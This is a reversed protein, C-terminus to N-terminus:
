ASDGSSAPEPLSPADDSAGATSPVVQVRLTDPSRLIFGSDPPAVGDAFSARGVHRLLSDIGHRMEVRVLGAGTCHHPGAGFPLIRSAQTFQRPADDIFRFPDFEDPREFAEPDRNASAILVFFRDGPKIAVGHLETPALARRTVAHVPPMFRLAEAAVSDVATRDARLADWLAPREFLYSFLSSLVRETTEVGATLLLASMAVIEEDPVPAGDYTMNCYDSIIDDGPRLRREAIIPALYDSLEAVAELARERREPHGMSSMSGATIVHYWQRFQTAGHDVNMLKGIALLPIWMCYDSKLDIVSPGTPLNAALRECTERVFGEMDQAAKSSRLRKAAVGSKKAHETGRMQLISRGYVTSGPGGDLTAFVEHDRLVTLVDAHRTLVYADLAESRFIPLGERCSAYLEWRDVSTDEAVFAEFRAKIVDTAAATTM